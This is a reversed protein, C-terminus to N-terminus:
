LHQKDFDSWLRELEEPLLNGRGDRKAHHAFQGKAMAFSLYQSLTCVVKAPNGRVVSNSPIDSTVVSRTAVIVNDGIKVGHEIVAGAALYVNNGIEICGYSMWLPKVKYTDPLIASEKLAAAVNDHTHFAVTSAVIVRDGLKILSADTPVKKPQFLCFHGMQAFVHHRRLYEARKSPSLIMKLRLTHYYRKYEM